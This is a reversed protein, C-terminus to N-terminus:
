FHEKVIKLGKFKLSLNEMDHIINKKKDHDFYVWQKLGTDSYCKLDVSTWMYNTFM